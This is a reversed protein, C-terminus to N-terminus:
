SLDDDQRIISPDTWEARLTNHQITRKNQLQTLANNCICQLCHWFKLKTISKKLAIHMKIDEALEQTKELSLNDFIAYPEDLDVELGISDDEDDGNEEILAGLSKKNAHDDPDIPTMRKLLVSRWRHWRVLIALRELEEAAEARREAERRFAEDPSIGLKREQEHKKVWEFWSSLKTNHFPNDVACYMSLEAAARCDAEERM